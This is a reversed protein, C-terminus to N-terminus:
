LGPDSVGAVVLRGSANEFWLDVSSSGM